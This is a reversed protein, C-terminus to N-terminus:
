EIPENNKKAWAVFAKKIKNWTKLNYARYGNKDKEYLWFGKIGFQKVIHMRRGNISTSVDPENENFFQEVDNMFKMFGIPSGNYVNALEIIHQYRTDQGYLIVMKDTIENNENYYYHIDLYDKFLKNKYIEVKKSKQAFSDSHTLTLILLLSFSVMKLVSMKTHNQMANELQTKLHFSKPISACMAALLQTYHVLTSYM